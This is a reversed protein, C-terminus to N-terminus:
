LWVVDQVDGMEFMACGSCVVDRIECGWCEMDWCGVDWVDGMRFMGCGSSGVNWVDWM